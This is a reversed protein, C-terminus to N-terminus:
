PAGSRNRSAAGQCAEPGRAPQLVDPWRFTNPVWNMASAAVGLAAGARASCGWQGVPGSGDPTFRTSTAADPEREPAALVGAESGPDTGRSHQAPPRSPWLRWSPPGPGRPVAITRWGSTAPRFAPRRSTAPTGPSAGPWDPRPRRGGYVPRRGDIFPAYLMDSTASTSLAPPRAWRVLFLFYLGPADPAPDGGTLPVRELRVFLRLAKDVSAQEDPTMGAEEAHAPAPRTTRGSGHQEATLTRSTM